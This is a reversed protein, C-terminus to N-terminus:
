LIRFQRPCDFIPFTSEILNYLSFPIHEPWKQTDIVM